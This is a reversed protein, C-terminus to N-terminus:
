AGDEVELWGYGAARKAGAGAVTLGQILHAMAEEALRPDRSAVRVRFRVGAPVAPFVIPVPDEWERPWPEKGAYYDPLHPDMVDLELLPDGGPVPCADLIMIPSRGGQTGFLLDARERGAARVAAARALGKLGSAPLYPCGLRHWTFGVESPHAGGLGTTLRWRTRLVRELVTWGGRGLLEVLLRGRAELIQAASEMWTGSAAIAQQYTERPDPKYDSIGFRAFRTGLLGPHLEERANQWRELLELAVRPGLARSEARGSGRDRGQQGARRDPRDPRV